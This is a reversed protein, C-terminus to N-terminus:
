LASSSTPSHLHHLSIAFGCKFIGTIIIVINYSTLQQKQQYKM